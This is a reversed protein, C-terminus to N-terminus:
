PLPPIERISLWRFDMGLSDSRFIVWPGAWTLLQDRSFSFPARACGELEANKATWAGAADDVQTLLKWDDNAMADIWLELHVRRNGDANRVVLKLGFWRMMPDPFAAMTAAARQSAYGASHSLEKEFLGSGDPYFNGHYSSGLCHANIASSGFPYGPWTPTGAPAAVGSNIASPMVSGQAHRESRAILEWHRLQGNSDHAETYRFYGTVEVNRWWSKGAPSGVSLRVEGNNGLTHFVGASVRTVQAREVNWESTPQEADDPLTWTRAQAASAYLMRVGFRDRDTSAASAGDAASGGDGSPARTGSDVDAGPPAGEMSSADNAGDVPAPEGPVDDDPSMDGPPRDSAEDEGNSMIRGAGCGASLALSVAWLKIYKPQLLM